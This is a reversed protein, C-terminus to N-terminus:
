SEVGGHSRCFIINSNGRGEGPRRALILILIGRGGEGGGAGFLILIGRGGEGARRWISNSNGKRTRQFLKTKRKFTKKQKKLKINRQFDWKLYREGEM